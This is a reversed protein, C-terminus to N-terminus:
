QLYRKWTTRGAAKRLFGERTNDCQEVSACCSVSIENRLILHSRVSLSPVNYYETFRYSQKWLPRRERNSQEVNMSYQVYDIFKYTNGDIEFVRYAPNNYTYTTLSPCTYAINIPQHNRGKLITFYDQHVHGYLLGRIINTYREVLSIYRESWDLQYHPFYM